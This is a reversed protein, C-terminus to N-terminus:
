TLCTMRGVNILLNLLSYFCLMYINSLWMIKKSM